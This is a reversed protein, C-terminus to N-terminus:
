RPAAPAPAAHSGDEGEAIVLPEAAPVAPSVDSRRGLEHSAFLAAFALPAFWLVYASFWYNMTLEMAAMLGAGLAAVQLVSRRRPVFALALALGVVGVQMATRLWDLDPFKGWLSNWGPRDNQYGLTRDWFGSLGNPPLLPLLVILVVAVFATSFLVWSRTRREGTGTAFLPALVLPGFKTLGALATLAGKAVPRTLALFAGLVLLAVLTDNFSYRIEFISYPFAAWGYALALGLMRGQRRNGPRLQRGLLLFGLLILVDFTFSAVHPAEPDIDLEPTGYGGHWPFVQEFPVYSVYTFPGYTDTHHWLTVDLHPDYLEQGKAIRDAGALSALGVDGVYQQQTIAFGFRAVLIGVLAIMLWRANLLPVLPGQPRASPQFGMWLFRVTLYALGAVTLASSGVPQGGGLYTRLAGIGVLVLVLLDFHLARFPRRPEFFPAIFLLGSLYFPWAPNL